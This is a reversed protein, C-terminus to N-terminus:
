KLSTVDEQIADREAEPYKDRHITDIDNQEHGMLERILDQDFNYTARTTVLNKKISTNKIGQNKKYLEYVKRLCNICFYWM